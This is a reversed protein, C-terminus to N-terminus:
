KFKQLVHIQTYIQWKNVRAPEPYPNKICMKSLIQTLSNRPTVTSSLILLEM